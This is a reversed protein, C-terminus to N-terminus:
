HFFCRHHTFILNMGYKKCAEIVENDRKSGGPQLITKIGYESALDICDSFPFFADSSLIADKAKLGAKELAIKTADIRSVQGGSLGLAKEDQSILIANSKIKKLARWAFNLSPLMTKIDIDGCIVEISTENIQYNDSHQLLLASNLMKACILHPQNLETCEILRLNKKDSFINKAEQSFSPAIIIEFFVKSIANATNEDVERNLIVIGGFASTSDTNFADNFATILQEHSAIGCPTAHKIIAVSPKDFQAIVDIAAGADVYNNYSMTKGQLPPKSVLSNIINSEQYIAANQHPNEGYRPTSIKEYTKIITQPLTEDNFHNYIMADYSATEKFAKLSLAKRMALDIGNNENLANAFSEYDNIDTIVSVWHYNKAAARIMTPGGVDINEIKDMLTASEQNIVAKFPYLNTVVIDIWHIDHTSADKADRVRDGLIAALLNPHLTKIRGHMIEPFHTIKEVSLAPINAKELARLTGGTSIIEIGNENLTKAFPILNTKDSVSILARKPKIIDKFSM